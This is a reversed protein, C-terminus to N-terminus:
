RAPVSLNVRYRRQKPKVPELSKEVDGKLKEIAKLNCVGCLRKAVAEQPTKFNGHVVRCKPCRSYYRPEWERNYSTYIGKGSWWPDKDKKAEKLPRWREAVSLLYDAAEEFTGFSKTDSPHGALATYRITSWFPNAGEPIPRGDWHIAGMHTGDVRELRWIKHDPEDHVPVVRLKMGMLYEKPDIAETTFLQRAKIM